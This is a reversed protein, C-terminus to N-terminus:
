DPSDGVIPSRITAGLKAAGMEWTIDAPGQVAV